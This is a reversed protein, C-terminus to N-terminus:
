KNNKTKDLLSWIIGTISTAAGIIEMLILEDLLGITILVGGVGTLTHRILGEIQERSLKM